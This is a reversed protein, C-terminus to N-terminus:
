SSKAATVPMADLLPDGGLALYLAVLNQARDLRTQTLSQRATYLTRQAVLVALYTDIGEKYRAFSLDYSNTAAAFLAQQASLQQQMTGRRALADAVDRFATQVALQYNAVALRQGGRAEALGAVNAGGEFIPLSAAGQAQWITNHGGFLGGLAPSAYGALGTLSITPFFAARAAGIQANAARLRHEAELVDPRRLLIRSDLGAPAEGLKGDVDELGAPLAADPAAAGVLLELANRDQAVQTTLQAQDSRAQELLTQAQALDTRAAVGGDLRAQTLAVTRQASAVTDSSVGLLTRDAALALYAKAVEGVLTLRAARAGAETALYQQRAAHSLSRLRGFLDIEFAASLDAEHTRTTVPSASLGSAGQRARAQGTSANAEVSPFLEARQIRYQARAIEVNALAAGLNQNHALAQDILGLLQPDRFLDRYSLAPLPEAAQTPAYAPGAPWAPPIAPAPRAYHPELTCGGLALGTLSLAALPPALARRM